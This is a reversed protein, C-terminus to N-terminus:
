AKQRKGGSLQELSEGQFVLSACDRRSVADEYIRRQSPKQM